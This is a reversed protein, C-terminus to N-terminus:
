HSLGDATGSGLSPGFEPWYLGNEESFLDFGSEPFQMDVTPQMLLQQLSPAALATEATFAIELSDAMGDRADGGAGHPTSCADGGSRLDQDSSFCVSGYKRSEADKLTAMILEVHRYFERAPFNGSDKLQSLLEVSEEFWERDKACESHGLLSSVALVTLASFLCQTLDHYLAPFAGHIWSECLIRCSHRACRICTDILAEAPAPTQKANNHLCLGYLLIPRTALIITQNLTLHLSLLDYNHYAPNAGLSTDLHLPPPLEEAWAKLEKVRQQVKNFLVSAQDKGTYISRVTHMSIGALKVFAKYYGAYGFDKAGPGEVSIPSPLDVKIDEDQIAPPCGLKSAWMRDLIYSTWWVRNRHERIVPDSQQAVPINLHLGMIVGMRIASGAFTYAAYVRNLTFSYISLILRIEIFDLTPREGLYNLIKTAHGFHALGPFEHGPPVFRSSCLEGLAFLARLKCSMVPDRWNPSYSKELADLVVSQRVIHYGRSTHMFAVNMLSRARAPRPWPCHSEALSMITDDGAYDIHPLHVCPPESPNSLVQRFRTAFATDAAENIPTPTHQLSIDIFWPQDDLPLGHSPDARHPPPRVTSSPSAPETATETEEHARSRKLAPPESQQSVQSRLQKNEAILRRLYSEDVRVRRSRAPYSCDIESKVCNKCPHDGSCKVKRAHCRQCATSKIRPMLSDEDTGEM